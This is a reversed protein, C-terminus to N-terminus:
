SSVRVPKYDVLRELRLRDPFTFVGGSSKLLDDRRLMQMMRNVHVSTLGLTDALLEQTLPLAFQLPTALGVLTLRDCTELLWDAIRQYADLRGIRTVQAMLYHHEFAASRAYAEALATTPKAQPLLCTAVESVALVTTPAIAQTHPHPGILDGPVLFSLIQRQGDILIRQHCAWGALLARRPVLSEGERVMESRARFVRTEREADQLAALDAGDLPAVQSLRMSLLSPGAQGQTM